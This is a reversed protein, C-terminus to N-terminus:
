EGSKKQKEFKEEKRKEYEKQIDENSIVLDRMGYVYNKAWAGEKWHTIAVLKPGSGPPFGEFAEKLMHIVKRHRDFKLDKVNRLASEDVLSSGFHKLRHYLRPHVPGYDWAQFDGKVLPKEEQGLYLM